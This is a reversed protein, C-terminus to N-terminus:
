GNKTNLFNHPESLYLLNSLSVCFSFAPNLYWYVERERQLLCHCGVGTSKGPFDRSLPAQHAAAWPTRFLQARSFSKVKIKWKWASSFSIAVWEVTRAQLIGPIASGPPSGDIPDCLTLCSQLSKATATKERSHYWIAKWSRRNGRTTMSSNWKVCNKLKLFISLEVM